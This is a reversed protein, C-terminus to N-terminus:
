FKSNETEKRSSGSLKKIVYVGTWEVSGKFDIKKWLYLIGWWFALNFVGFILVVYAETNWRPNILDLTVHFITAVFAEFVFITLSARGFMIIPSVNKVIKERKEEPKFDILRLLIIIIFIYVGLQMFRVFNFNYIEFRLLFTLLLYNGISLMAFGFLLWFITINRKKDDRALSIGLIGGLLAYAIIPFIPFYPAVLLALLFGGLYNGNIFLDEVIPELAFSLSPTVALITVALAGLIIKNRRVKEFGSNRSLLIMITPVVFGSLGIIM